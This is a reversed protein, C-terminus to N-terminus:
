SLLQLIGFQLCFKVQCNSLHFHLHIVKLSCHLCNSLGNGDVLLTPLASLLCCSEVLKGANAHVIAIQAFSM